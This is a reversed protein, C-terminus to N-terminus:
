RAKAQREKVQCWLNWLGVGAIGLMVPLRPAGELPLFQFLLVAGIFYRWRVDM